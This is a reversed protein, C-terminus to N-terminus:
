NSVLELIKNKEFILMYALEVTKGVTEVPNKTIYKGIEKFEVSVDFELKWSQLLQLFMLSDWNLHEAIKTDDNIDEINVECEEAFFDYVQKRIKDELERTREMYEVGKINSKRIYWLHM